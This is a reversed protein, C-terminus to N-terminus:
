SVVAVLSGSAALLGMTQDVMIEAEESGIDGTIFQPGCKVYRMVVFQGVALDVTKSDLGWRELIYGTNGEALKEYALKGTSAAAAQPDIMYQMNGIDEQTLGLKQFVRSDCVRRPATVKNATKTPPWNYNYCSIDLATGGTFLALSPATLSGTPCFILKLNAM